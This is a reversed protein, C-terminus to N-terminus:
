KQLTWELFTIYNPILHGLWKWRILAFRSYYIKENIIKLNIKYRPLCTNMVDYNYYHQHSLDDYSRPHNYFSTVVKITGGKKLIREFEKLMDVPYLVHEIVNDCEIAEISNDEFPYPFKDLDCIIDTYELQYKDINVWGERRSLGGCKIKM